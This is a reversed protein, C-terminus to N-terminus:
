LIISKRIYDYNRRLFFKGNNPRGLVTITAEKVSM